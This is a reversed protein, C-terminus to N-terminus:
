PGALAEVGEEACEFEGDEDLQARRELRAPVGLAPAEFLVEVLEGCVLNLVPLPFSDLPSM